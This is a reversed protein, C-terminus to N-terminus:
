RERRVPRARATSLAKDLRMWVRALASKSPCREAGVAEIISARAQEITMQRHTALALRRVELDNWFDPNRRATGNAPLFALVYGGPLTDQQVDLANKPASM